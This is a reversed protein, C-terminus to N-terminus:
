RTYFLCSGADVAPDDALALVMGEVGPLSSRNMLLRSDTAIATRGIFAGNKGVLPM